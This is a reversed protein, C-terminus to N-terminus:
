ANSSILYREPLIDIIQGKFSYDKTGFENPVLTYNNEGFLRKFFPVGDSTEESITTYTKCIHKHDNLADYIMEKAIGMGRQDKRVCIYYTKLGFDTNKYAFAHLGLIGQDTKYIQVPFQGWWRRNEWLFGFTNMIFGSSNDYVFKMLEYKEDQTKAFMYTNM